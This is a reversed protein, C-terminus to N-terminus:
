ALVEATALRAELREVLKGWSQPMGTRNTDGILLNDEASWSDEVLYYPMAFLQWNRTGPDVVHFSTASASVRHAPFKHHAFQALACNDTHDFMYEEDPPQSKAFALFEQMDITNMETEMTPDAGLRVVGPVM